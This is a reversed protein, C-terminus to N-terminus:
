RSMGLSKSQQMHQSKEVADREQETTQFEAGWEVRKPIHVREDKLESVNEAPMDAGHERLITQREADKHQQDQSRALESPDVSQAHEIKLDERRDIRPSERRAALESELGAEYNADLERSPAIEVKQASRGAPTLQQQEADAQRDFIREETSSHEQQPEQQRHPALDPANSRDPEHFGTTTEQALQREKKLAREAGEFIEKLFRQEQEHLAAQHQSSPALRRNKQQEDDDFAHAM